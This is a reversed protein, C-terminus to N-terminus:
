RKCCLEVSKIKNELKFHHVLSEYITIIRNMFEDSQHKHHVVFQRGFGFHACVKWCGLNVIVAHLRECLITAIDM